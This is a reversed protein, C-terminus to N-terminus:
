RDVDRHEVGEATALVSADAIPEKSLKDILRGRLEAALAPGSLAAFIFTAVTLRFLFM